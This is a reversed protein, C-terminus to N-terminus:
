ALSCLHSGDKEEERVRGSEVLKRLNNHLTTKRIDTRNMIETRTLPGETELLKIIEAQTSTLSAVTLGPYDEKAWFLKRGGQQASRLYGERQLVSLHYVANGIGLSNERYVASFNVGPNDQVFQFLRGRTTQRLIDRQIDERNLRTYLPALLRLIQYRMIESSLIAISLVLLVGAGILGLLFPDLEPLSTSTEEEEDLPMIKEETLWPQFDLFNTVNDGTGEPNETPHYPGTPSGWYNSAVVATLKNNETGNVGFDHNGQITNYRIINSDGQAPTSFRVFHIGVKNDTINNYEVRNVLGEQITIGRSNGCISNNVVNTEHHYLGLGFTNDLIQSDWIENNKGYYNFFGVYSENLRCSRFKNGSSGGDLMIAYDCDTVSINEFVSDHTDYLSIGHLNGSLEVNRVTVKRCNILYIIGPNWSEDITFEERDTIFYIPKGEVLNTEDIVTEQYNFNPITGPEYGFNQANRSFTNGRLVYSQGNGSFINGRLVNEETTIELGTKWNDLVSNNLYTNFRTNAQCNIGDDGNAQFLNSELTNHSSQSLVIGDGDKGSCLNNELLNNGATSLYIGAESNGFLKNDLLQCYSAQTLRIGYASGSGSCNRVVTHNAKVMLGAETWQAGGSMFACGSLNCWPAQITMAPNEGGGDISVEASSNGIINLPKDVVVSEQYNGAWIHITDGRMSANVAEQITNFPSSSTGDGGSPADGDVYHSDAQVFGPLLLFLLLVSGLSLVLLLLVTRRINDAQPPKHDKATM